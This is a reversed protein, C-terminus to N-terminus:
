FSLAINLSTDIVKNQDIGISPGVYTNNVFNILSNLNYMLPVFTIKGDTSFIEKSLGLSAIVLKPNTKYEGYQLLNFMLGFSMSISNDFKYGMGSTLYFKPYFHFKNEPIVQITESSNIEIEYDKNNSNLIFKNHVITQNKDTKSIVNLIKYKREYIEFEWPNKRWYSFGVNGIPVYGTKFKEKLELMQTELKLENEKVQVEEKPDKPKVNDTKVNNEKQVYSIIQVKNFSDLKSNLLDLDKKLNSIDLNNSKIEKLLDEEKMYSSSSRIIEDGIQKQKIQIESLYKDNEKKWSFFFYLGLCNILLILSLFIVHVKNMKEKFRQSM